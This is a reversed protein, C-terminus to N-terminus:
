CKAIRQSACARDLQVLNATFSRLYLLVAKTTTAYASLTIRTFLSIFSLKISLKQM